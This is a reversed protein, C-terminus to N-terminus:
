GFQLCEAAGFVTFPERIFLSYHNFTHVCLYYAEKQRSQHHRRHRFLQVCLHAGAFRGIGDRGAGIQHRVGLLMSFARFRYLEPANTFSFPVIGFCYSCFAALFAWTVDDAPTTSANAANLNIAECMYIRDGFFDDVNSTLRNLIETLFIYVSSFAGFHAM